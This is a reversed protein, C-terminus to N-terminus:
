LSKAVPKLGLAANPALAVPMASGSSAWSWRAAARCSPPLFLLALGFAAVRASCPSRVTSCAKAHM